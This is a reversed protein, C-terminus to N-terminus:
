KVISIVTYDETSGYDTTTVLVTAIGPRHRRGEPGLDQVLGQRRQRHDRRHQHDPDGAHEPHIDRSRRGASAWGSRHGNRRADGARAAQIAQDSLDLRHALGDAQGDGAERDGDIEAANGAPDTGSITIKNVGAAIAVSLSFTGDSEATGAVSSGNADNRALLTTRAQTKGKITVAKGNIVANNKPSTITIKPPADDFIYRAPLSRDSEGAPGIISVSFDNIGDALEIGPIVTKATSAIAVEKILAPQQDPLALYLRIKHTKDGILSAPVTVVLDVTPQSTYAETPM